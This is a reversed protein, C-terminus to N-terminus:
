AKKFEPNLTKMLNPPLTTFFMQIPMCFDLVSFAKGTEGEPSQLKLYAIVRVWLQTPNQPESNQVERKHPLDRLQYPM